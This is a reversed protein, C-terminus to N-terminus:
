TGSTSHYRLPAQLPLTLRSGFPPNDLQDRELDSRRTISFKRFYDELSSISEPTIGDLEMRTRYFRSTKWAHTLATRLRRLQLQKLQARPMLEIKPNWYGHPLDSKM